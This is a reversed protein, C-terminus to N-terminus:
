NLSSLYHHYALQIGETLKTKFTWGLKDLREVNLLKQPTGDPKDIEYEIAGDYGIIRSIVKVLERITIDEGTGINIHTVDQNYLEEADVSELIFVCADALDDVYMFERRANGTGWAAVSSENQEKAKHIKAILAPIVHGSHQDYNDNQGYLNTPMVSIFNCGYQRFYNECLKIGAIKAVAYPENTPELLGTLLLKEEMPQPALKPYICSSGLFLLREVNSNYSEHIINSQIMLNEYLFEARHTNNYLIGGVKAAADVVVDPKEKKFFNEVVRQRTLDFHEFPTFVFNSYGKSILLRHIASGVMGTGGAIYIKSDKDM